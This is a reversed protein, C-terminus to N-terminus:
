YLAGLALALLAIFLKSPAPRASSGVIIDFPYFIDYALQPMVSVPEPKYNSRQSSGLKLEVFTVSSSITFKQTAGILPEQRWRWASQKLVARAALLMPQPSRTTGSKTWLLEVDVADIFNNCLLAGPMPSRTTPQIGKRDVELSIWDHRQLPDANGYIGLVLGAPAQFLPSASMDVCWETINNVFTEYTMEVTCSSSADVGFLVPTTSPTAKGLAEWFTQQSAGAVQQAFCSGMPGAAAMIQLGAPQYAVAAQDAASVAIGAQVPLGTIYGPNGSVVRAVITANPAVSDINNYAVQFTQQLALMSSSSNSTAAAAAALHTLVLDVRAATIYGATNYTLTYKLGAVANYCTQTSADWTTNRSWWEPPALQSAGTTANTTNVLPVPAAGYGALAGSVPNKYYIQGVRLQV